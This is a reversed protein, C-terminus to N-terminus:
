VRLVVFKDFVVFRLISTCLETPLPHELRAMCQVFAFIQIKPEEPMISPHVTESWASLSLQMSNINGNASLGVIRTADPSVRWTGEPVYIIQKCGAEVSYVFLRRATAVVFDFMSCWRIDQANPMRIFKNFRIQTGNNAFMWVREHKAIIVCSSDHSWAVITHRSFVYDFVKKTPPNGYTGIIVMKSLVVVFHNADPSMHHARWENPPDMASAFMTSMMWRNKGGATEFCKALWSSNDNNAVALLIKRGSAFAWSVHRIMGAVSFMPGERGDLSALVISRGDTLAIQWERGDDLDPAFAAHQLYPHWANQYVFTTVLTWEQKRGCASWLTPPANQNLLLMFQLGNKTVRSLILQAM